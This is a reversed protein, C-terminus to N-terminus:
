TFNAPEFRQRLKTNENRETTVDVEGSHVKSKVKTADRTASATKAAAAGRSSLGPVPISIGIKLRFEHSVLASPLMSKTNLALDYNLVWALIKIVVRPCPSLCGRSQVSITVFAPPVMRHGILSGYPAFQKISLDNCRLSRLQASLPTEEEGDAAFQKKFLTFLQPLKQQLIGCLELQM